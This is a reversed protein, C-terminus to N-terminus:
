PCAAPDPRARDNPLFEPLVKAGKRRNDEGWLPRINSHHFCAAQQAPDTLDFSACPLKHDLHWQSRNDWTMGPLFQAEIYARFEIHSCGILAASSKARKVGQALCAKRLRNRLRGEIAYALDEARRQRLRRCLEAANAKQKAKLRVKNKAVWAARAVALKEKNAAAYAKSAALQHDRNALYCAKRRANAAERNAAHFAASAAKAKEPDAERAKRRRGRNVAKAAAIEDPTAKASWEDRYFDRPKATPSKYGPNKARWAAGWEPKFKRVRKKRAKEPNAEAWAGVRERDKARREERHEPTETADRKRRYAAQRAAAAAKQEPTKM